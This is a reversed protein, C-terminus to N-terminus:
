GVIDHIAKLQRWLKRVHKFAIANPGDSLARSPNVHTEAFVADCGAAVAARALNPVLHGDGATKGKGAGPRQVSHTADFVVPYGLARMIPLNRMDAVLNQYGFSSGRETLLINRNGTSAVKNAAYVMDEASLFQGKKINVVCGSEGAAILLDTQRCLFAPIQLVDVVQGAIRAQEVTHIDTLVPVQLRERVAALTSLGAELGPGRYADVSNRNAKDFSAKFILPIYEEEALAALKRAQTMCSRHSEIVCPGAILALSAGKGISIGKVNVRNAM